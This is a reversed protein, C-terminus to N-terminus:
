EEMRSDLSDHINHFVDQLDELDPTGEQEVDDAFSRFAYAANESDGDLLYEFAAVLLKM